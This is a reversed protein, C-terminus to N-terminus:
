LMAIGYSGEQQQTNGVGKRMMSARCDSIVYGTLNTASDTM